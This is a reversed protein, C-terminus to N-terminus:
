IMANMRTGRERLRCHHDHGCRREREIYIYIDEAREGQPLLSTERVREREGAKDREGAREGEREPQPPPM